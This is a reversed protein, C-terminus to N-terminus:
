GASKQNSRPTRQTTTRKPRTRRRARWRGLQRAGLAIGAVGGGLGFVGWWGSTSGALPRLDLNVEGVSVAITVALAVVSSLGAYLPWIFFRRAEKAKAPDNMAESCADIVKGVLHTVKEPQTADRPPPNAPPHRSPRDDRPGNTM